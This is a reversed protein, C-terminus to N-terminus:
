WPHIQYLELSSDLEILLEVSQKNSEVSQEPGDGLGLGDELGLGLLVEFFHFHVSSSTMALIGEKSFRLNVGNNTSVCAGCSFRGGPSSICLEYERNLRNKGSSIKSFILLEM